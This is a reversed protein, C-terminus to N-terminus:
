DPDFCATSSQHKGFEPPPAPAQTGNKMKYHIMIIVGIYKIIKSM